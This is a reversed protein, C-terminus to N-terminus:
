PQTLKALTDACLSHVNQSVGLDHTISELAFIAIGLKRKLEEVEQQQTIGLRHPPLGVWLRIEDLTKLGLNRPTRPAIRGEALARRVAAEEPGVGSRCLATKARTSLHTPWPDETVLGLERLKPLMSRGIGRFKLWETETMMTPDGDCCELAHKVAVCQAPSFTSNLLIDKEESTQTNSM